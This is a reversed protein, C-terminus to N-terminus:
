KLNRLLTDHMNHVPAGQSRLALSELIGFVGMAAVLASGGYSVYPLPLGTVPLLGLNMGINVLMQTLMLTGLGVYLLATFDDHARAVLRKLRWGYLLFAGLVLLIGVFGLEEAIAAFIFDTQAEPLFQLQSQSGFGLGRGSLRGSGIAIRAQTVNYGVGLADRDPQLFT